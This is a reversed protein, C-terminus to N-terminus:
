CFLCVQCTGFCVGIVHYGGRVGVSRLEVWSALIEGALFAHEDFFDDNIRFVSIIIVQFMTIRFLDRGVDTFHPDAILHICSRENPHQALTLIAIIGPITCQVFSEAAIIHIGISGRQKDRLSGCGLHQLQELFWEPAIMQQILYLGIGSIDIRRLFGPSLSGLRKGACAMDECVLNYLCVFNAAIHRAFM